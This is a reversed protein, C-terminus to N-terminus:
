MMFYSIAFCTATGVGITLPIGAKFFDTFRYNGAAYVLTNTQYGIPTAFSASAAFMVAIVLPRPDLGLESALTIVIPTVIIAVANNTVIETMIVSFLYVAFIIAFPPVNNLYPSLYGVLLAVSGARELGVGVALMAFILVLVNGDISSWAEEADICRALLIAGVGLIAAVAITLVNMAALAVVLFLAVIAIPARDRRFARATTQVIGFLNPNEYMRKIDDNSGTVLLKDAAHIRANPLDSRPLARFRSLGLIRVNLQSLFPIDFLRNGIAPHGPAVTAEVLTEGLPGVDGKRVIGIKYDDSSRLSLLEQLDLRVVIRDGAQMREDELYHRITNGDRKIATATIRARKAIPLESFKKDIAESRNRVTLETLFQSEDSPEFDSDSADGPLLLNGFLLLIGVGVVGAILGFPTIEFIGFPEMGSDRAVADVILNTSTGILTTTGGLICIFSLPILLKKPAYGTENGLKMIIPIMVLVVPTNNMFASAVFAGLFMEAVALKPQIRARRIILDAVADITGTRLLAGSLIFMAGITIPATNSFVSFLGDSDIIGLFLFTCAGLIAVVAAPFRESIFGAFMLALIVLGIQASYFDIWDRITELIM